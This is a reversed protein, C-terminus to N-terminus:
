TLFFTTVPERDPFPKPDGHSFFDPDGNAVTSASHSCRHGLAGLTPDLINHVCDAHETGPSEALFVACGLNVKIVGHYMSRSRSRVYFKGTAVSINQQRLGLWSVHDHHLSPVLLATDGSRQRVSGSTGRQLAQRANSRHTGNNNFM